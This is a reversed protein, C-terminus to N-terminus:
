VTYRVGGPGDNVICPLEQGSKYPQGPKKFAARM